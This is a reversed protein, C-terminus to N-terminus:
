TFDVEWDLTYSDSVGMTKIIYGNCDRWSVPDRCWYKMADFTTDEKGTAWDRFTHPLATFLAKHLMNLFATETPRQQRFASSKDQAQTTNKGIILSTILLAFLVTKKM